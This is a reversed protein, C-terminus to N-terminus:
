GLHVLIHKVEQLCIADVFNQSGLIDVFIYKCSNFRDFCESTRRFPLWPIHDVILDGYILKKGSVQHMKSEESPIIPKCGENRHTEPFIKDM